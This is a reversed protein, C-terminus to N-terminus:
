HSYPESRRHYIEPFQELGCGTRVLQSCEASQQKGEIRNRSSRVARDISWPSRVRRPRGQGRLSEGVPRRQGIAAAGAGSPIPTQSKDSKLPKGAMRQVPSVVGRMFHVDGIRLAYVYSPSLGDASLKATWSRVDSPRM